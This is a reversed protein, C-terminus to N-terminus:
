EQKTTLIEKFSELDEMNFLLKKDTLPLNLKILGGGIEINGVFPTNVTFPQSDGVRDIMESLIGEVDVNGDEDSILDLAKTVKNFNKDIARTILPKMFGIIPNTKSVIDIQGVIYSKLKDTLELTNVM